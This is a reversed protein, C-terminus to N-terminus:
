VHKEIEQAVNRLLSPLGNSIELSTTQCSFATELDDKSFLLSARKM